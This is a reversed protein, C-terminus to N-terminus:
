CLSAGTARRPASPPTPSPLNGHALSSLHIAAQSWCGQTHPLLSHWVCPSVACHRCGLSPSSTPSHAWLARRTPPVPTDPNGLLVVLVDWGQSTVKCGPAALFEHPQWLGTADDRQAMSKCLCSHDTELFRQWRPMRVQAPALAVEAATPAALCCLGLRGSRRLGMGQLREMRLEGLIFCQLSLLVLKKFLPTLPTKVVTPFSKWTVKTTQTRKPYKRYTVLTKFFNWDM